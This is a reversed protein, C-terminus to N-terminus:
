SCSNLNWLCVSVKDAVKSHVGEVQYCKTFAIDFGSLSKNCIKNVVFGYIHFKLLRVKLSVVRLNLCM